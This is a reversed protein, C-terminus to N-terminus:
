TRRQRGEKRGKRPGISAHSRVCAGSVATFLLAHAAFPLVQSGDGWVCSTWSPVLGTVEFAAGATGSCFSGDSSSSSASHGGVIDGSSDGGFDGISGDIRGGDGGDGGGGGGGGGGSPYLLGRYFFLVLEFFTTPLSAQDAEKPLACFAGACTLLYVARLAAHTATATASATATAGWSGSRVAGIHLLGGAICLVPALLSVYESPHRVLERVLELVGNYVTALPWFTLWFAVIVFGLWDLLRKFLGDKNHHAM